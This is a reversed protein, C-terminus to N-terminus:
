AVVENAARGAAHQQNGLEELGLAANLLVWYCASDRQIVPNFGGKDNQVCHLIEDGLM